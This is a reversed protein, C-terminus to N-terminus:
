IKIKVNNMVVCGDCRESDGDAMVDDATVMVGIYTHM